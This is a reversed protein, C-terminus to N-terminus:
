SVRKKHDQLDVLRRKKIERLEVLRKKYFRKKYSSFAHVPRIISFKSYVCLKQYVLVSFRLILFCSFFSKQNYSMENRQFNGRFINEGLWSVLLTLILLYFHLFTFVLVMNCSIKHWSATVYHRTKSGEVNKNADGQFSERM